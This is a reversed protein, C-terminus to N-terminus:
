PKAELLDCPSCIEPCVYGKGEVIERIHARKFPNNIHSFNWTIILDIGNVAALAIHMADEPCKEPIAGAKVLSNALQGAVESSQLFPLSKIADLRRRAAEPNGAKAEEYVLASVFSEFEKRLRPWLERTEEQHAAIVLDRSGRSTLYSVVSTEIYISMKV